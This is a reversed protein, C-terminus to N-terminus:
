DKQIHILQSFVQFITSTIKKLDSEFRKLLVVLVTPLKIFKLDKKAQVRKKCESCHYINVNSLCCDGGDFNCLFNNNDEDCQGNGIM